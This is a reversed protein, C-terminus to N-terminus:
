TKKMIMSQRKSTMLGRQMLDNGSKNKDITQKQKKRQTTNVQTTMQRTAKTSPNGNKM